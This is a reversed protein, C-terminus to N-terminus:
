EQVHICRAADYRVTIAEGPYERVKREVDDGM